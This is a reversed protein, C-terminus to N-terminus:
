NWNQITLFLNIAFSGFNSHNPGYHNPGYHNPGYSYSFGLEKFVPGNSIGDQFTWIWILNKPLM